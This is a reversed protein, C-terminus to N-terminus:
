SGTSDDTSETASSSLSLTFSLLTSWESTRTVPVPTDATGAKIDSVISKPVLVYEGQMQIQSDTEAVSTSIVFARVKGPLDDPNANLDNTLLFVYSGTAVVTGLKDENYNFDEDDSPVWYGNSTKYFTVTFTIDFLTDSVTKADLTAQTIEKPTSTLAKIDTILSKQVTISNGTFKINDNSEKTREVILIPVAEPLLAINTDLFNQPIFLHRDTGQIKVEGNLSDPFVNSMDVNSSNTSGINSTIHGMSITGEQFDVDQKYSGPPPDVPTKSNSDSDCGLLVFLSIIFCIQRM